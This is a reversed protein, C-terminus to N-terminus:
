CNRKHKLLGTVVNQEGNFNTRCSWYNHDQFDTNVGGKPCFLQSECKNEWVSPQPRCYQSSTNYKYIRLNQVTVAPNYEAEYYTSGCQSCGSVDDFAAQCDHLVLLIDTMYDISWNLESDRSEARNWGSKWAVAPLEVPQGDLISHTQSYKHYITVDSAQNLTGSCYEWGCLKRTNRGM